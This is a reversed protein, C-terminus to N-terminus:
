DNITEEVKITEEIKIPEEVTPADEWMAMIRLTCVWCVKQQLNEYFKTSEKDENCVDCKDTM